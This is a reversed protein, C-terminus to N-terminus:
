GGSRLNNDKKYAEMYKAYAEAFVKDKIDIKAQMRLDYMEKKINNKFSGKDIMMRRRISRRLKDDLPAKTPAVVDQLLFKVRGDSTNLWPTTEGIKIKDIAARLSETLVATSITGLEGGVGKTVDESRAKAVEAFSKKAKLDADVAAMAADDRVLIVSIKVKKPTTYMAPNKKYQDDIEQDTVTIGATAVKFQALELRILYKLDEPTGGGNMWREMFTSDDGIRQKIENEVEPDSPYVGKNKALQLVLRESILRELTMFGPPFESYGGSMTMGVGTLYEMRHYYEGGKIEEGNIVAVTRAPDVQAYVAGTVAAM